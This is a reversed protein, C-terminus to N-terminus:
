KLSHYAVKKAVKVNEVLGQREYPHFGTADVEVKFSFGDIVQIKTPPLANLETMGEVEVFKVYDGDQFKHRKDEHVTIICPNTQTAAVVIFSKTDEGDADTISFDNGYDLFTFGQPGYTQSLIFGINKSRVFENVEIMQDISNFIETYAVVHFNAHDELTLSSVVNVKVYPNLEQLKEFSADARSTKGVHEEKCYFNSSLDGWTVPTPDFLTVSKPGALILNKATEVGLGRLGVILVNMKILKGMAEMGFTGIQRSYLNTDIKVEETM